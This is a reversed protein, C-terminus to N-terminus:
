QRFLKNFLIQFFDFFSFQFNKNEKLLKIEKKFLNFYNNKNMIKLIFNYFLIQYGSLMLFTFIIKNMKKNKFINYEVLSKKALWYGIRLKNKGLLHSMSSNHMVFKAINPTAFSIEKQKIIQHLYLMLDPGINQKLMIDTRLENNKCFNLIIRKWVFLFSSNFVLCIPSVPMFKVGNINKGFYALLIKKYSLKKVSIPLFKSNNAINTVIGYGIALNEKFVKNFIKISYPSLEDDDYLFTCFKTKVYNISEFCANMFGKKKQVIIKINKRNKFKEILYQKENTSSVIILFIPNVKELIKLHSYIFKSAKNVRNKTPFIFTIKNKSNKEM